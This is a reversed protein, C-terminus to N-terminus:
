ARATIRSLMRKAVPGLMGLSCEVAQDHQRRLRDYRRWHMGKPKAPFPCLVGLEGGLLERIKQGKLILRQRPAAQRTAYTLQYCKRCRWPHGPARYLKGARRGCDCLFYARQGGFHWPLHAILLVQTDLTVANDNWHRPQIGACFLRNRYVWWNTAPTGVYGARHFVDIEISRMQEVTPGGNGGGRGM